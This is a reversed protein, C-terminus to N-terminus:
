QFLAADELFGLAMEGLKPKLAGGQLVNGGAGNDTVDM